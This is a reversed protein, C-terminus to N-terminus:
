FVRCERDSMSNGGIMKVRMAYSNKAAAGASKPALVIIGRGQSIGRASTIFAFVRCRLRAECKNQFTIVFMPTKGRRMYHDDEDICNAQITLGADAKPAPADAPATQARAAFSACALLCALACISVSSSLKSM